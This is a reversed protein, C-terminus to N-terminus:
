ALGAMAARLVWYADAADESEPEYGLAEKAAAMMADKPANGRGTACRKVTGVPIGAYPIKRLECEATLQAMLGGYVHAADTGLHRRVEEFYVATVRYADFLTTLAARFRVYRM